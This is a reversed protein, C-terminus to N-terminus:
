MCTCIHVICSMYAQYTKPYYLRDIFKGITIGGYEGLMELGGLVEM